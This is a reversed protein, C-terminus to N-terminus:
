LDRWKRSTHPSRRSDLLISTECAEFQVRYTGIDLSRRSDLLISTEHAEFEVTYTIIGLSSRHSLRIYAECAGFEISTIIRLVAKQAQLAFFNYLKPGMKKLLTEFVDKHSPIGIIQDPTRWIPIRSNDRHCPLNCGIM